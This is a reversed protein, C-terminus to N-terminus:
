PSFDQTFTASVTNTGYDDYGRDYEECIYNATVGDPDTWAFPTRGAATDLFTMIATAIAPTVTFTLSWMKPNTNIGDASRQAYGDGFQAVLNRPKKKIKSTYSPTYAFTTM